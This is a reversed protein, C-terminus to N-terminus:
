GRFILGLPEREHPPEDPLEWPHPPDPEAERREQEACKRCLRDIDYADM